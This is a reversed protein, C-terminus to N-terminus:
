HKSLTFHPHLRKYSSIGQANAGMTTRITATITIDEGRVPNPTKNLCCRTGQFSQSSCLPRIIFFETQPFIITATIKSADTRMTSAESVDM